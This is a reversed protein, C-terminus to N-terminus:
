SKADDSLTKSYYKYYIMSWFSLVYVPLLSIKICANTFEKKYGNRKKPKTHWTYGLCCCSLSHKLPDSHWLTWSGLRLSCHHIGNLLPGQYLKSDVQHIELIDFLQWTNNNEQCYTHNSVDHTYTHISRNM